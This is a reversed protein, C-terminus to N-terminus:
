KKGGKIAKVKPTFIVLEKKVDVRIECNKIEGLFEILKPNKMTRIFNDWRQKIRCNSYIKKFSVQKFNTSCLFSYIKKLNPSRLKRRHMINQMYFGNNKTIMLFFVDRLFIFLPHRYDENQKRQRDSIFGFTIETQDDKVVTIETKALVNLIEEIKERIETNLKKKGFVIKAIEAYSTKILRGQTLAKRALFLLIDEEQTTIIYGDIYVEKIKKESGIFSLDNEFKLVSKKDIKKARQLPLFIPLRGLALPLIGVPISKEFEKVISNQTPTGILPQKKGGKAPPHCEKKTKKKM